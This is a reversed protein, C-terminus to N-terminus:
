SKRLYSLPIKTIGHQTSLLLFEFKPQEDWPFKAFLCSKGALKENSVDNVSWTKAQQTFTYLHFM